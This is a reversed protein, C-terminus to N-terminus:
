PKTQQPARSAPEKAGNHCTFCTVALQSSLTIAGGTHNFYKKNLDNTMTMMQRAIGKHKNADSVFDMKKTDANFTHCFNCKVNLSATFHHMVSDMQEKSTDKPLVKLNQYQSNSAQNTVACSVAVLGVFALTVYLIKKMTLKVNLCNQIRSLCLQMPGSANFNAAIKHFFAEVGPNTEGAAM